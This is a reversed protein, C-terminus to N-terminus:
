DEDIPGLSEGSFNEDGPPLINERYQLVRDRFGRHVMIKMAQRDYDSEVLEVENEICSECVPLFVIINSTHEPLPDGFLLRVVASDNDAAVRVYQDTYQNCSYCYTPYEDRESVSLSVWSPNVGTMDAVNEQCNPCTNDARPIVRIHCHPCEVIMENM